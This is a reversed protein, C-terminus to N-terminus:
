RQIMPTYSTGSIVALPALKATQLTSDPSPLSFSSDFSCEPSFPSPRPDEWQKFGTSGNWNCAGLAHYHHLTGGMEPPTCTEVPDRVNEERSELVKICFSYLFYSIYDSLSSKTETGQGWFFCQINNHHLDIAPRHLLITIHRLQSREVHLIQGEANPLILPPSSFHLFVRSLSRVQSQPPASTWQSGSM